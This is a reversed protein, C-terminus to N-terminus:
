ICTSMRYTYIYKKKTHLVSNLVAYCTQTGLQNHFIYNKNYETNNHLDTLNLYKNEHVKNIIILKGREKIEENNEIPTSTPRSM